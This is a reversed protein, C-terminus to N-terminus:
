ASDDSPPQEGGMAEHLRLRAARWRRKVTPESIGLMAAADRQSLGGYWVLNLVEREDEPLAEVATHFATWADSSEPAGRRDPVEDLRGGREDEGRPVVDTHHQAAHGEPGFHHRALDLLTRRIQTAALGFFGRLSDPRVAGLSRHLRLVAVQFVDDTEEWHRLRPNNRLMKRALNHLRESARAILEEYALDDGGTARDLLKQLQVTTEGPEEMAAGFGPISGCCLPRPTGSDYGGQSGGYLDANGEVPVRLSGSQRGDRLYPTPRSNRALETARIVLRGVIGGLLAFLLRSLWIGVSQFSRHEQSFLQLPPLMGAGVYSPGKSAPDHRPPNHYLYPYLETYFGNLHTLPRLTSDIWTVNFCDLLM